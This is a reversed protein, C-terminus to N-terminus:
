YCDRTQGSSFTILQPSRGGGVTLVAVVGGKRKYKNGAAYNLTQKRPVLVTPLLPIQSVASLFLISFPSGGNM